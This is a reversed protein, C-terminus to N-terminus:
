DMKFGDILTKLPVIDNVSLNASLSFRLRAQSLPVTPHRIPLVYFGNDRLHKSLNVASENSGTIFPVIHSQQRAGTIESMADTLRFLNERLPAFSDMQSLIFRTRACNVPAIATSFILSRCRNVLMRKIINNCVVYAGTSAIAKGFTGVILEVSDMCGLEEAIGLGRSGRVGLAHAEDVYLFCGFQEKLGVIAQLPALDGDMSFISETVIFINKFKDRNKALISELHNCDNHRYRMLTAESLRFGDILSAHVYKDAVILDSATTLAPLIGINAHYGSNFILASEKGYLSALLQELLEHEISNGTLLRSSCSSMMASSFGYVSSFSQWICDNGQLGLYDNSSLNVMDKPVMAPIIRENQQGVLKDLILEFDNM